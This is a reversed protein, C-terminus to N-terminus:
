FETVDLIVPYGVFVPDALEPNTAYVDYVYMPPGGGRITQIVVGELGGASRYNSTNIQDCLALRKARLDDLTAKWETFAAFIVIPISWQGPENTAQPIEFTESNLILVYPASAVTQDLITWDNIVVDADAFETMAQIATQLGTQINTEQLAM